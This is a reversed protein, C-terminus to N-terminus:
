RRSVALGEALRSRFSFALVVFLLLFIIIYTTITGITRKLGNRKILSTFRVACEPTSADAVYYIIIHIQTM